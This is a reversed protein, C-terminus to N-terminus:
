AAAKDKPAKKEPPPQEDAPPPQEAVPPAEEAVPPAVEAVPPPAEAPPPPAAPAPPKELKAPTEPKAPKEPKTERIKVPKVKVAKPPRRREEAGRGRGRDEGRGRGRESGRGREEGRGRAVGRGGELGSARDDGLVLGPAGPRGQDGARARRREGRRGRADSRGRVDGHGLWRAEPRDGALPRDDRRLAAPAASPGAAIRAAAVAPAAVAVAVPAAVASRAEPERTEEVAAVGGGAVALVIATKAVVSSTAAAGGGLVAAQLGVSPAVPLILALERRQTRVEERFERCGACDRLHRRLVNRRLAGGRLNALQERIEVCPADRAERSAILSSRAQFVLAKVKERPCGLAQGIDDHSMDGLEALVLAARQDDPLGALDGLLSRLEHRREVDTSLHDTSPEFLEWGAQERRARLVTLCRNRAIAYLWPRLHIKKSSVAIDRYAALFTHQVADEAEEASGLMHRCFSLVGRHHRAYLAEFAPESGDRLLEVLREDSALRLLRAPLLRRRPVADVREEHDGFATASV